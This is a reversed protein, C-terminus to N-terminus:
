PIEKNLLILCSKLLREQPDDIHDKELEKNTPNDQEERAVQQIASRIESADYGLGILTIYLDNIEFTHKATEIPEFTNTRNNEHDSAITLEESLKSRLEVSLRQAIRKGIGQAETLKQYNEDLIATTLEESTLGNLLAVALQPGVGNVGILLRFLDREEKLEFGFLSYGNDRQVQHIWLKLNSKDELDIISRSLVQVEYGIGGCNVLIGKKAGQQWVDIQEGKLWGIM